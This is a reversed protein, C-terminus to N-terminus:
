SKRYILIPEGETKRNLNSIPMRLIKAFEFGADRMVSCSTEVLPLVVGKKQQIDAVNLVMHGGSKLNKYATNVVPGLFGQVWKDYTEYRVHSQDLSQSYQETDFYPPSTFVLSLESPPNFDEAPCQVVHARDTAGLLSALRNNGSVTQPEVDTGVYTVGASVAGLLRGGYGACPDWVTDGPSAYTQYIYKAVVPRFITPTRCQMTLARLVRHPVVPDGCDLQFKIAWRLDADQHWLQYASLKGRWSATFRNPFFGSCLKLGTLAYPRISGDVANPNAKALSELERLRGKENLEKPYPFGTVRLIHFVEDVWQQRKTGELEKWLRPDYKGLAVEMSLDSYSRRPVGMKKPTVGVANARRRVTSTGVGYLSAVNSVSMGGEILAAVAGPTLRKANLDLHQRETLDPVKYSLCSHIHPRVIDFFQQAQGPFHFASNGGSGHLEPNLGMKRLASVARRLSVDCLGFTIRPCRNCCCGDDMYWVALTLPNMLSPLNAPFVRKGTKYFLDYYPYLYTSRHLAYGRSKYTKGTQKDVKVGDSVRTVHEGFIQVKWQLYPEQEMCHSESFSATRGNESVMGGDGLLSGLLVQDQTSTFPPLTRTLRGTKGLTEIGWQRRLANVRPQHTSYLRAIETDTLLDTEYLSRLTEPTLDHITNAM